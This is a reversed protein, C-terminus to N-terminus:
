RRRHAHGGNSVTLRTSSGDPATITEAAVSRCTRRAIIGAEAASTSPLIVALEEGGYRAVSVGLRVERSVCQSIQAREREHLRGIPDMAMMVAMDIRQIDAHIESLPVSGPDPLPPVRGALAVAERWASHAMELDRQDQGSRSSLAEFLADVARRDKEFPARKRGDGAIHFHHVRMVSTQM